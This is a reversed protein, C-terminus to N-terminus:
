PLAARAAAYEAVMAEVVAAATPVDHILGAVQGVELEGGVLDGEHIGLRARGTGLLERLEEVPACRAEAETVQEWFQNKLFRAPVVRKLALATDTEGAEVVARKYADHASSEATVAFRSGVQVGEAGLALAALMSRGDSIGGAAIVPIAVADVALRTLVLTTLEDPGNHGGAEFGEAVVADAGADQCKRAQAGTAVVHVVIVGRAKLAPTYLRPSGASTFVIKVGEALAIDVLDPAHRAFVPINVGWPQDTREGMKRLHERFLDPRMSGGGVLGLAGANSAAAALRSGSCWVMGAQVIPHRIGFLDTVRTRM